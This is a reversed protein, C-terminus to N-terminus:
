WGWTGPEGKFPGVVRATVWGGYFGGAQPTVVAGDVTCRDVAGPMVAVHDRIVEFAPAPTPYTWAAREAVRDGGLVDFYAAQGKWECLSAGACRLLAGDVFDEAPLYYTPPHSTELVRLPRTSAAVREGGLWIEVSEGSADIAPPRPYDWVSEQGPGPEQRRPRSM